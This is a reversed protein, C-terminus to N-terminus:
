NDRIMKKDKIELSSSPTFAGASEEDGSGEPSRITARGSGEEHFAAAVYATSMSDKRKLAV